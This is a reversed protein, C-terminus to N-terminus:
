IQHFHDSAFGYISIDHFISYLHQLDSQEGIIENGLQTYTWDPPLAFHQKIMLQEISENIATRLTDVANDYLPNQQPAPLPQQNYHQQILQCLNSLARLINVKNNM